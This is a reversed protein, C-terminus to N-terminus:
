FHGNPCDYSVGSFLVSVAVRRRVTRPAKSLHLFEIYNGIDQKYLFDGQHSNLYNAYDNLDSRYARITKADLRKRNQCYQLYNEKLENFNSM